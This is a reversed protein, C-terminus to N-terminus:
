WTSARRVKVKGCITCQCTQLMSDAYVNSKIAETWKSWSHLLHFTLRNM